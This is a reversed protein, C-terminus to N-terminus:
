SRVPGCVQQRISDIDRVAFVGDVVACGQEDFQTANAPVFGASGPTVALAGVAADMPIATAAPLVALWAAALAPLRRM